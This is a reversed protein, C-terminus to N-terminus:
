AGGVMGSPMLVGGLALFGFLAGWLLITMMLLILESALGSQTCSNGLVLGLCNIDVRDVNSSSRRSFIPLDGIM